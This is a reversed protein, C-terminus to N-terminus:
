YRNFISGKLLKDNIYSVLEVFINEADKKRLYALDGLILNSKQKIKSIYGRIGLM